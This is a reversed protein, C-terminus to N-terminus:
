DAFLNLPDKEVPNKLKEIEADVWEPPVRAQVEKAFDDRVEKPVLSFLIGCFNCERPQVLEKFISELRLPLHKSTPSGLTFGDTSIESFRRCFPCEIEAEFHLAPTGTASSKGAFNTLRVVPKWNFINM